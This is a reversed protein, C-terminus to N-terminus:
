VMPSYPCQWKSSPFKLIAEIACSETVILQVKRTVGRVEGFFNFVGKVGSSSFDDGIWGHRLFKIALKFNNDQQLTTEHYDRKAPVYTYGNRLLWQGVHESKKAEVYIDLDSLPYYARIFFQLAFSGSVIAGTDSLMIRFGIPDAFFQLLNRNINFARPIFDLVTNRFAKCTRALRLLEAANCCSLIPDYLPHDATVSIAPAM